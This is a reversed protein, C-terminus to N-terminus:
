QVGFPGRLVARDGQITLTPNLLGLEGGAPLGYQAVSAPLRFGPLPVAPLADRVVASMVQQLVDRLLQEVAATTQAALLSDGTSVHLEDVTCDQLLFAGADLSVACSVRGGVGADIPETLLAPDELHANIAGVAIEIRGDARLSVAPPLTTSLGLTAGAPVLGNLAGGGLTADFYGGRWLAHLAQDLMGVHLAAAVSGGLTADFLREGSPIPAGLTPRAHAPTAQFRTGMGVLMRAPNTNLSSFNTSFNATLPSGGDFRPVDFASPLNYVDLGSVVGDLVSNFNNTVYDRMTNAVLDRVTGNALAVIMNLVVGDLGSFDTSISGVRVAVSNPRISVNPQGGVLSTDFTADVEGFSFTVWGSTDFGVGSVEGIVRLQLRINEVRVRNQMGGNVLTLSTSNPGNIQMNLYTVQSRVVCVTGVLPIDISQDCTNPKLPNAALLSAHLTNRLGASNLVTSLIDDFSNLAGARSNDDFAQQGAGYSITNSLAADDPAWTESLLFACTRHAERGVGDQAALNVFNIGWAATIPAAFSGSADVAVPVGNVQLGGIGNVDDVSGTLVVPGPALNLIAGDIPDACAITPGHGDVAITVSATVPMGGNTAGLVTATITYTGDSLYVFRNGGIQQDAPPNSVLEVSAGAVTGGAGDLVLTAVEVPEGLGYVTQDPVKSIHVTAPLASGGGSSDGGGGGGCAALLLAAFAASVLSGLASRTAM